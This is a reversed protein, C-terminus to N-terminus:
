KLGDIVVPLIAGRVLVRNLSTNVKARFLYNTEPNGAQVMQIVSGASVVPAGSILASPNTDAAGSEYACTVLPTNITEGAQLDFNFNFTLPLVEQYDKEPFSRRSM